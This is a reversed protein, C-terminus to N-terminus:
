CFGYGRLDNLLKEFFLKRNDTFDQYRNLNKSYWSALSYNSKYSPLEFNENVFDFYAICNRKFNVELGSSPLEKNIELFDSLAHVQADSVELVRKLVNWKWRALSEEEEIGSAYPIRNFEYVFQKFAEFREDFNARTKSVDFPAYEPPYVKNSLGYLGGTFTTFDESSSLNSHINKRTTDFFDTVKATLLDLSLPVDSEELIKRLLDRISGGFVNRWHSLKYTSTRGVCQIRDSSLLKFRLSGFALTYDDPYKSKLYNHIEETSIPKGTEYLLQYAENEVDIHNQPFFFARGRIQIDLSKAIIGVLRLLENNKCIKSSFIDKYAVSTDEAYQASALGTLISFILNVIPSLRKNVLYQVSYKDVYVMPWFESIVKGFLEFSVSVKERETISQYNSNSELFLIEDDIYGLADEKKLKLAKKLSFKSIIQRVRERSLNYKTAIENLNLAIKEVGLGYKLLFIDLDRSPNNKSLTSLLFFIPYHGYSDQFESVFEIEESNLWPFRVIICFIEDKVQSAVVLQLIKRFPTLIRVFFDYASKRKNSYKSVFSSLDNELYPVLDYFHPFNQRRFNLSRGGLKQALNEYEAILYKKKAESIAFKYYDQLYDLNLTQRLEFEMSVLSNVLNDDPSLRRSLQRSIESILNLIRVRVFYKNPAKKLRGFLDDQFSFLPDSIKNFFSSPSPFLLKFDAIVETSENPNGIFLEFEDVVVQRVVPSVSDFTSKPTEDVTIASLIEMLEQNTKRGCNRLNMFSSNLEKYKQIDSVKLIKNSLCVNSTRVSILKSALLEQVTTDASVIM